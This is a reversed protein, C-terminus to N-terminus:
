SSRAPGHMRRRRSGHRAISGHIAPSAPIGNCSRAPQAAASGAMAATYWGIWIYVTGDAWAERLRWGSLKYTKSPVVLQQAIYGDSVVTVPGRGNYALSGAVVHGSSTGFTGAGSNIYWGPPLTTYGEGFQEAGGVILMDADPGLYAARQRMGLYAGQAPMAALATAYTGWSSLAAGAANEARAWTPMAGMGVNSPVGDLATVHDGLFLRGIWEVAAIRGPRWVKTVGGGSATAEWSTSYITSGRAGISLGYSFTGGVPDPALDYVLTGGVSPDSAVGSIWLRLRTLTQGAPPRIEVMAVGYAENFASELHDLWDVPMYAGAAAPYIWAITPSTLAITFPYDVSWSSWLNAPGARVQVRVVLPGGPLDATPTHTISSAAIGSTQYYASYVPSGAAIGGSTAYIEVGYNDAVNGDPDSYAVVITPRRNSGTAPPASFAGMVPPRDVTFSVSNSWASALNTSGSVAHATLAGGPLDVTPVHSWTAGVAGLDVAYVVTAGQLVEIHVNTIPDGDPDSATGSLTPRTTAVIGNPGDM